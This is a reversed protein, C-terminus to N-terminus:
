TGIVLKRWTPDTSTDALATILNPVNTRELLPQLFQEVQSWWEVIIIHNQKVLREFELREFQEASDVKWMDLHYLMGKTSHRQFPYEEMYTYTPSTLPTTIGLFKAVGQAFVTKGAGLPGDLGIILGSQNVDDWHKLLLRGAIGQTEEPSRSILEIRSTSSQTIPIPLEADDDSWSQSQTTPTTRYISPNELNINSGDFINTNPHPFVSTVETRPNSRLDLNRGIPICPRGRKCRISQNSCVAPQLSCDPLNGSSSSTDSFQPGITIEGQRLTVPTSLTTDIVTSPPRHPLEGADIILDVLKKQQESLREWVDAVCYPRKEGSANASTATIPKGLRRVIEIVLPYDPIRVGVTGFESEVGRAVRGLSQSVVTVPGPLLQRYITRAQDNLQVFQEAMAQDAVAISLPKGERRSKYKLLKDVAAQNTAMVGAGYTTETPFIVLGGSQLVEVIRDILAPEITGSFHLMQM